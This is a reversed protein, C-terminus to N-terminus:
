SYLVYGILGTAPAGSGNPTTTAALRIGSTIAIGVPFAVHGMVGNAPTSNSPLPISLKPATTGVTVASSSDFIQLYVPISNLNIFGYGGFKGSSNSIASATGSLAVFNAVSYGTGTTGLGVNWTGSQSVSPTNTVVVQRPLTGSTQVTWASSTQQSVYIAPHDSALVVPLSTGMDGQGFPGHIDAQITAAIGGINLQGSVLVTNTVNTQVTQSLGVPLFGSVPQSSGSAGLDLKIVQIENGGVLDVVVNNGIGSAVSAYSYSM